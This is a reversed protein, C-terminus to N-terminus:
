EISITDNGTEISIRLHIFLVYICENSAMQTYINFEAFIDVRHIDYVYIFTYEFQIVTAVDLISLSNLLQRIVSLLRYFLEITM